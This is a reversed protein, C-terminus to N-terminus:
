PIFETNPKRPRSKKPKPPAPSGNCCHCGRKVVGRNSARRRSEMSDPSREGARTKGSTSREAEPPHYRKPPYTRLPPHTDDASSGDASGSREIGRADKIVSDLRMIHTGIGSSDTSNTEEFPSKCCKDSDSSFDLPRRGESRESTSNSEWFMETNREPSSRDDDVDAMSELTADRSDETMKADEGILAHSELFRPDTKEEDYCVRRIVQTAGSHIITSATNSLHLERNLMSDLKSVGNDKVLVSPISGQQSNTPTDPYKLNNQIGGDPTAQSIVTTQPATVLVTAPARSAHFITSTMHRGKVNAITFPQLESEDTPEKHFTTNPHSRAFEQPDLTITGDGSVTVINDLGDLMNLDEEDPVDSHNSILQDTAIQDDLDPQPITSQNILPQPTHSHHPADHAPSSSFLLEAEPFLESASPSDVGLDECEESLSKQLRLEHELIAYRHRLAAASVHTLRHHRQTTGDKRHVVLVTRDLNDSRVIEEYSYDHPENSAALNWPETSEPSPHKDPKADQNDREAWPSATARTDILEPPNPNVVATSDPQQSATSGLTFAQLNQLAAAPLRVHRVGPRTLVPKLGPGILRQLLVANGGADGGGVTLIKPGRNTVIAIQQGSKVMSVPLIYNAPMLVATTPKGTNNRAVTITQGDAVIVNRQPQPRPTAATENEFTLKRVVKRPSDQPSHSDLCSDACDGQSTGCSSDESGMTRCTDEGHVPSMDRTGPRRSSSSSKKRKSSGPNSPPNSRRRPAPKDKDPSNEVQEKYEALIYLIRQTTQEDEFPKQTSPKPPVPNIKVSSSPPHPTPKPRPKPKSSLKASKHQNQPSTLDNSQAETTVGHPLQAQTSSSPSDNANSSDPSRVYSTVSPTTVTAKRNVYAVNLSSNNGITYLVQHTSETSSSSSHSPTDSTETASTQVKNYNINTSPQNPNGTSREKVQELVMDFERLQELTSSSMQSEPSTQNETPVKIIRNTQSQPLRITQHGLPPAATLVLQQYVPQNTGGIVNRQIQFFSPRVVRSGSVMQSPKSLMPLKIRMQTLVPQPQPNQTCDNSTQGRNDETTAESNTTQNPPYTSTIKIISPEVDPQSVHQKQNSDDILETSPVTILNITQGGGINVPIQRTYIVGGHMTQLNMPTITQKLQQVLSPQATQSQSTTNPKRLLLPPSNIQGIHDTNSSNESQCESNNENSITTNLHSHNENVDNGKQNEEQFVQKGFAQNFKPLSTSKEALPPKGSNQIFKAYNEEYVSRSKIEQQNNTIENCNHQPATVNGNTNVETQTDPPKSNSNQVSPSEIPQIRLVMSRQHPANLQISKGDASKCVFQVMKQENGGQVNSINTVLNVRKILQGTNNTKQASTNVIHLLQSGGQQVNSGEVLSLGNFSNQSAANNSPMPHSQGKNQVIHLIPTPNSTNIVSQQPNDVLLHNVSSNKGQVIHLVQANNPTQNNNDTVTSRNLPPPLIQALAQHLAISNISTTKSYSNSLSRQKNIQKEHSTDCMINDLSNSENTILPETNTAIGAANMAHAIQDTKENTEEDTIFADTENLTQFSLHQTEIDTSSNNADFCYDQNNIHSGIINQLENENDNQDETDLVEEAIEIKVISNVETEIPINEESFTVKNNETMSQSSQREYDQALPLSLDATTLETYETKMSPQSGDRPSNEASCQPPSADTVQTVRPDCTVPNQAAASVPLQGVQVVQVIVELSPAGFFDLDEINFPYNSELDPYVRKKNGKTNNFIWDHNLELSTRKFFTRVKNKLRIYSIYRNTIEDENKELDRNKITKIHSCTSITFPQVPKVDSLTAASIKTHANRDVHQQLVRDSGEGFGMRFNIEDIDNSKYESSHTNCVSIEDSLTQKLPDYIMEAYNDNVNFLTDDCNSTDVIAQIQGQIPWSTLLQDVDINEIHFPRSFSFKIAKMYTQLATYEKVYASEKIAKVPIKPYDINKGKRYRKEGTKFDIINGKRKLNRAARSQSNKDSGQKSYTVKPLTIDLAASEIDEELHKPTDPLVNLIGSDIYPRIPFLYCTGIIPDEYITGKLLVKSDGKYLLTIKDNGGIGTTESDEPKNNTIKEKKPGVFDDTQKIDQVNSDYVIKEGNLESLYNSSALQSSKLNSITNILYSDFNLMTKNESVYTTNETDHCNKSLEKKVDENQKFEKSTDNTRTVHNEEKNYDSSSVVLVSQNKELQKSNNVTSTLGIDVLEGNKDHPIRLPM